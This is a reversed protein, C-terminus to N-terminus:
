IKLTNVLNDVEQKSNFSHLCIRLREQGKPVTPSLIPRVDFGNQQLKDAMAKVENNGPIIICQIPSCSNLTELEFNSTLSRFHNILEKLTNIRNLNQLLFEHANKITIISHLPLATTYIFARSFNILYNRLENSGLIAAGHVGFAKGFTVIRAFVKNELELECVLGKGNGYIGVAHAEDVILAANYKNCINVIELLPVQDGDMSYVSEVVVYVLGKANSLKQELAALNNHTFSFNNANSLKIGDRISAHIFKDYIITDNRQPLCQFLGINANYGSNFILAAHTNYFNALFAETEETLKYNGSILRSGTAGYNLLESTKNNIHHITTEKAFGLYDNSCFDILSTNLVLERFAYNSKSKDIRETIFKSHNHM